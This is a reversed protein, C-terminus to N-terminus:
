GRRKSRGRAQGKGRGPANPKRASVAALAAKSAEAQAVPKAPIVEDEDAADEPLAPALKASAGRAAEKAGQKAKELGSWDRKVGILIM